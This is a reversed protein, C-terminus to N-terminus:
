ARARAEGVLAPRALRCGLAIMRYGVWAACRTSRRPRSPLRRRSAGYLPRGSGGRVRRAEAALEAVRLQAMEWVLRDM